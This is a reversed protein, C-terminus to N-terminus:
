GVPTTATAGADGNSPIRSATEKDVGETAPRELVEEVSAHSPEETIDDTIFQINPIDALVHAQGGIERLMVVEEPTCDRVNRFLKGAEARDIVFGHSPYDSILSGLTSLDCNKSRNPRCKREEFHRIMRVDTPREIPANFLLIDTNLSDVVRKIAAKAEKTLVM